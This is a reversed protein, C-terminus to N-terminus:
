PASRPVSDAAPRGEENPGVVVWGLAELAKVVAKAGDATRWDQDLSDAIADDIVDTLEGEPVAQRQAAPAPHAAIWASLRAAEAKCTDAPWAEGYCACFEGLLKHAYEEAGLPAAIQSAYFEHAQGLLSRIYDQWWEVNGGGGDGLLGADFAALEGADVTARRDWDGYPKGDKDTWVNISRAPCISEREENDPHVYLDRSRTSLSEALVLRAGCFPCPKLTDTM